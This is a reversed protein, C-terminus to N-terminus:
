KWCIRFAFDWLVVTTCGNIESRMFWVLLVYQICSSFCMFVGANAWWSQSSVSYRRSSRDSASPRYLSLSLSLTLPIRAILMVQHHHHHYLTMHKFALIEGSIWTHGRFPRIYSIIINTLCKAFFKQSYTKTKKPRKSWLIFLKPLHQSSSIHCGLVKPRWRDITAPLFWRVITTLLIIFHSLAAWRWGERDNWASIPMPLGWGRNAM